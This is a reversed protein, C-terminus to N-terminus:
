YSSFSKYNCFIATMKGITRVHIAGSSHEKIKDFVVKKDMSKDIINNDILEIMFRENQYSLNNRVMRNKEQQYSASFRNIM